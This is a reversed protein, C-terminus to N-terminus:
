KALEEFAAKYQQLIRAATVDIKEDDSSGPEPIIANRSLEEEQSSGREAKTTPVTTSSNNKM